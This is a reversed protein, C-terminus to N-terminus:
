QRVLGMRRVESGLEAADPEPKSLVAVVKGRRTIDYTKGLEVQDLIDGAGQRLEMVTIEESQGGLLNMDKLKSPM